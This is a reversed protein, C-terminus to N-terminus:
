ISLHLVDCPKTLGFLGGPPVSRGIFVSLSTSSASIHMKRMENASSIWLLFSSSKEKKPVVILTTNKRSGTEEM